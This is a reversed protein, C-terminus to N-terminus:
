DDFDAARHIDNVEQHWRIQGSLGTRIEFGMAKIKEGVEEKVMRVM